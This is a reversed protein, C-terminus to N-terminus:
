ACMMASIPTSCVAISIKERHAIFSYDWTCIPTDESQTIQSANKSLYVRTSM